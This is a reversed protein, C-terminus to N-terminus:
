STSEDEWIGAERLLMKGLSSLDYSQVEMAGTFRDFEPTRTQMDTRYRPSLLGLQALHEEYSKLLAEKDIERQTSGMHTIVRSLTEKHKEWFTDEGMISELKYSRLWIVEIDNIEGLIRLIHRSEAIEIQESNMGNVILSAIYSRRADSLSRSAQRLGEELLDIFEEDNSLQEEFLEREVTELRRELETAFKAVRDM